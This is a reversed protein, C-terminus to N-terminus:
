KESSEEKLKRYKGLNSFFLTLTAFILVLGSWIQLGGFVAIMLNIIALGVSFATIYLSLKIKKEKDIM